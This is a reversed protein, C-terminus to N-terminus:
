GGVQSIQLGNLPSLALAFGQPKLLMPLVIPLSKGGGTPAVALCDVGSLSAASANAQWEFPTKEFLEQSKVAVLSLNEYYKHDFM